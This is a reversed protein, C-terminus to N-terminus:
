AAIAEIRNMADGSSYGRANQGQIEFSASGNFRALCQPESFWRTQAFASFPTM